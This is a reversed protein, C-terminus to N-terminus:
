RVARSGRPAWLPESSWSGEAEWLPKSSWPWHNPARPVGSVLLQQSNCPGEGGVAVSLQPKCNLTGALQCSCSQEGWPQLSTVSTEPLCLIWSKQSRRSMIKAKSMNWGM